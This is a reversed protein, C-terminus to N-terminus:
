ELKIFAVFTCILKSVLNNFFLHSHLASLCCSPAASKQMRYLIPVPVAPLVAWQAELLQDQRPQQRQEHWATSHQVTSLQPDVYFHMLVAVLM